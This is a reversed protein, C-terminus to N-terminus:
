PKVLVNARIDGRAIVDGLANENDLGETGYTVDAATDDIYIRVSDGIDELDTTDLWVQIVETTGAAITLANTSFNFDLQDDIGGAAFDEAGGAFDTAQSVDLTVGTSKRVIIVDDDNAAVDFAYIEFHLSLLEDSASRFSVDAAADATLNFEAVNTSASPILSGSPSTAAVSITLKSKMIEHTAAELDTFATIAAAGGSAKGTGDVDDDPNTGDIGVNLDDANNVTTGDVASVDAYVTILAYSNAPVTSYGDQATITFTDAASSPAEGLKIGYGSEYGLDGTGATGGMGDRDSYVYWKEVDAAATLDTEAFIIEDIEIDEVNNAAFRFVGVKQKMANGVMISKLPSTTDVTFTLTGASAFTMDSSTGTPATTVSTGTDKGTATVDGADTDLSVAVTDGANGGGTILTAPIDAVFAIKVFTGKAITLTSSFTMSLDEDGDDSTSTPNVANSMQTEYADGRPSTGSTLDAWIEANQITSVPDPTSDGGTDTINISWQTATVLMDEGSTSADLSATGLILNQMGPVISRAAPQTQTTSVLAATNVTMTNFAAGSITPSITTNTRVGKATVDGAATITSGLTEGDAATSDIRVKLTYKATGVPAIFTQTFDLERNLAVAGDASADVPGAVINNSADYIRANSIDDAETISGSLDVSLASIRVEEGLTLFDWTGLTQNDAIAINGTAASTASKSITLSGANITQNSDPAGSWTGSDTPTFYYGYLDGRAVVLMDGDEIDAGVTLGSGDVVDLQVTFRVNSGQTIKLAPSFNWTARNDTWSAVTGVTANATDNWLEINVTDDAAATGIRMVSIQEVWVDETSGATLTFQNVKLNVDGVDPTSDTMSGFETVDISGITLTIITFLNGNAPAGTVSTANSVVDTNAAIGLGVTNGATASTTVGARLYFDTPASIVLAPSFFIQAKHLANFGGATSGVQINDSARIMKVNQVQSDLSLGLRSVYLSTISVSAGASPALTIKTMNAAASTSAATAISGAAPTGAAVSVSLGGTPATATGSGVVLRWFIDSSAGTFTKGNKYQRTWAMYESVPRTYLNYTGNAVTSALKITWNFTITGGNPVDAGDYYVYRNKNPNISTFSSADLFSPTGDMPMQTGMGWTGPPVIKGAVAPLQSMGKITTGSRNIMSLSLNLTQGASLGAYEHALGDASITGSQSVWEYRYIPTAAIASPVALWGATAVTMVWATVRTAKTM